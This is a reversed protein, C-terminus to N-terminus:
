PRPPPWSPRAPSSPAATFPHVRGDPFLLASCRDLNLSHEASFCPPFSLSRVCVFIRGALIHAPSFLGDYSISHIVQSRVIGPSCGAMQARRRHEHYTHSLPFLFSFSRCFHDRSRSFARSWDTGQCTVATGRIGGYGGKGHCAHCSAFRLSLRLSQTATSIRCGEEVFQDTTESRQEPKPFTGVTESVIGAGGGKGDFLIEM